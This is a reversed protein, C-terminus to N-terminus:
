HSRGYDFHKKGTQLRSMSFKYKTAASAHNKGPSEYFNGTNIFLNEASSTIRDIYTNL